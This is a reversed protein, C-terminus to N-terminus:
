PILQYFGPPATPSQHLRTTPLAAYIGAVNIQTLDGTGPILPSLGTLPTPVILRPNWFSVFNMLDSLTPLRAPDDIDGYIIDEIGSLMQANLYRSDLIVHATPRYGPAKTPVSTIAWSFQMPNPSDSLTEYSLSSPVATLNYLLHVKYGYDIGKLDNGIKTRYSLGFLKTDQGDVLLGGGLNRIGEYDAFQDPYTFATLTASFDGTLPKDLYKIGDFYEPESADDGFDEDVSVLGSWSVGSGDALYLVGRDVGAEYLREGIQDWLLRVM